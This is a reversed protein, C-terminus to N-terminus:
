IAAGAQQRSFREGKGAYSRKLVSDNTVAVVVFHAQKIFGQQSAQALQEIKKKDKVLIFKLANQNGATPAFRAM